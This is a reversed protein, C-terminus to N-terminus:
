DFRSAPGLSAQSGSALAAGLAAGENRALRQQRSKLKDLGAHMSEVGRLFRHRTWIEIFKDAMQHSVRENAHNLAPRSWCELARNHQLSDDTQSLIPDAHQIPPRFGVLQLCQRHEQQAPVCQGYMTAQSHELILHPWRQHLRAFAAIKNSMFVVWLVHVLDPGWAKITSIQMKHFKALSVTSHVCLM